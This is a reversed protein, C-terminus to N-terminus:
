TQLYEITHLLFGNRVDQVLLLEIASGGFPGLVKLCLPRVGPVLIDIATALVHDGQKIVSNEQIFPIDRNDARLSSVLDSQVSDFFM